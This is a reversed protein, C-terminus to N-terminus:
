QSLPGRPARGPRRTVESPRLVESRCLRATPPCTRGQRWHAARPLARCLCHPPPWPRLCPSAHPLFFLVFRKKTYRTVTTPLKAWSWSVQIQHLVEQPVGHFGHLQPDVGGKKQLLDVTSSSSNPTNPPSFKSHLQKKPDPAAHLEGL